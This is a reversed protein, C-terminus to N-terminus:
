PASRKLALAAALLGGSLLAACLGVPLQAPWLVTRGLMDALLMLCIGAVAAGILQAGASRAGLRTALHPALIGVFAVPGLLSTVLASLLASLLLFGARARGVRLGRGVAIDDGLSLLALARRAVLAAALCAAVGLALALAAGPGVRYTSGALWALVAVVDLSGRALIFQVIGDLLASLSLGVLALAVPSWALRRGIAILAALALGSGALAPLWGGQQVAVGGVASWVILALTAGASVGLMDPSALPNRLLRQLIVGAIALGAGAAAAALLRPWRLWGIAADPWAFRWGDPMRAVAISLLALAVFAGWLLSARAPRPMAAAETPADPLGRAHRLLWVLAPAGILAAAAGSPVSDALWHGAVIALGDALVLLLAGLVASALWQAPLSRAGGRRALIPALVSIFGILGVAAVAAATLWLSLLLVVLLTPALALGRGAAADQGLRLLALPRAVFPLALLPLILRPALWSAWHWDYQALDGAGWVFVGAAYRDNLLAVAGALAGLLINLAMGALILQLSALRRLGTLLLLLATAGAAGGLALWDPHGALLTPAWVAACTMALWAGSAAGLTMPSALLNGTLQQLLVGSLGLAAGTMLGVVLRPLTGDWFLVADIDNGPGAALTHLRLFLGAAGDHWAPALWVLVACGALALWGALARPAVITM